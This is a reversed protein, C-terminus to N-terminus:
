LLPMSATVRGLRARFPLTVIQMFGPAQFIHFVFLVGFVRLLRRLLLDVGRPQIERFGQGDQRQVAKDEVGAHAKGQLHRAVGGLLEDVVDQETVTHDAQHRAPALLDLVVLHEGLLVEVRHAHDAVQVLEVLRVLPEVLHEHAAGLLELDGAEGTGLGVERRPHPFDRHLEDLVLLDLGQEEGQAALELLQDIGGFQRRFQHGRDVAQGVREVDGVQDARLEVQLDLGLLLDEFEHGQVVQEVANGPFQGLPQLRHLHAVLQLGGHLLVHVLPLALEEEALLQLGDALLQALAVVVLDFELFQALPDGFFPEARLGPGRHVLFEAPQLADRRRRRFVRHRAVVDVPDEVQGPQLRGGVGKIQHLRLAVEVLVVVTQGLDLFPDELEQRHALEFLVDVARDEAEEARGAHALGREALTDGAGHVALEHADREAAHPVLRFDATVPPGVDAGQGPPDDLTQFPGPGVVRHEQEVLDVLEAVVEAAIGARGQELHEVRLLVGGEGVMVQVDLEVKGLHHEDGRGVHEVGDGPRQAVAHLHDFEGAVGLLLLHGDGAAVQDGLLQLRVREGCVVQLDRLRGDLGQDAAVGALGPHAVQLPFEGGEAAARGRADGAALGALGHDRRVFEVVEKTRLPEERLGLRAAPPRSQGGPKGPRRHAALDQEDLGRAHLALAPQHEGALEALHHLLRGGRGQGVDLGVGPFQIDVLFQEGGDIQVHM